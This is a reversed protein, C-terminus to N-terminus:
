NFFCGLLLFCCSARREKAQEPLLWFSPPFPLQLYSIFLSLCFPSFGPIVKGSYLSRHGFSRNLNHVQIRLASEPTVSASDGGEPARAPRVRSGPSCPEGRQAQRQSPAPVAPQRAQSERGSVRPDPQSGGRRQCSSWFQGLWGETQSCLM